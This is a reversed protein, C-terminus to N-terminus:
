PTDGGLRVSRLTLNFSGFSLNSQLKVPVRGPTDSIWLLLPNGQAQGRDNFVVARWTQFAGASTKISDLAEVSLEAKYNHGSASVPMSTRAGAKFPRARLVYVASLADQAYQPVAFERKSDKATTNEFTAKRSTQNFVTVKLLHRKGEESYVSARQPLMNYVDILADAKYYLTYRKSMLATPRAEAVVYYALSNYSPHKDQVTMTVTGATLYSSWSVDYTLQEGVRFPVRIESSTAPAALACPCPAIIMTLAVVLKSL